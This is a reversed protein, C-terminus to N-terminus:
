ISTSLTHNSNQQRKNITIMYGAVIILVGGILSIVAPIERFLIVGYITASLPDLYMIIASESATVTKLGKFLLTIGAGWIVIGFVLLLVFNYITLTYDTSIIFPLLIISGIICQVFTLSYSSYHAALKKSILINMAYAIAAIFSCALGILNSGNFNGKLNEPGLLFYIGILAILLAFFTKIQIREKLFVPSLIAVLVPFLYFVFDASSITLYRIAKIFFISSIIYGVSLLVLLPIDKSLIKIKEKKFKIVIFLFIAAIIFRYFSLVTPPLLIWRNFVGIFGFLLASIILYVSGKKM